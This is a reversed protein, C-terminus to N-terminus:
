RLRLWRACLKGGPMRETINRLVESFGLRLVLLTTLGFTAGAVLCRGGVPLASNWKGIFWLVAFGLGGVFFPPPLIRKLGGSRLLPSCLWVAVVVAMWQGAALAWVYALPGGRLSAVVMAPVSLCAAVINVALSFKLRNAALLISGFLATVSVGSAFITGPLIFPDAAMWKTGYLLRSLTTGEVAVFVAGPVVVMLMTQAVLGAHRAFQAPDQASRPLLPYVTELILNNVRGFTTVFLVQARNLLGFAEYGLARPLVLAELFGRAAALLAVGCGQAGFRFAARYDRWAPRGLWGGRPRWGRLVLLDFGYPVGHLVNSGIIMAYAGAGKIGLTVSVAATLLVGVGNVLRLRRFDMDRRLMTVALQNPADVLLGLSALHLLPAVPRYDPLLWAVGAVLNCLLTLGLQLHTGIRWHLDWDPRERDGLQIAHSLFYSCNFCNVVALIGTAAAARGYEAPAVVRVLVLMSAFNIGAVFFQFASNWFVGRVILKRRSEGDMPGSTESM